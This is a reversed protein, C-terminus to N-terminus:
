ASVCLRTIDTGKLFCEIYKTRCKNWKMLMKEANEEDSYIKWLGSSIANKGKNDIFGKVDEPPYGLFLGVEHPCDASRFREQLYMLMEDLTGSYGFHELIAKSLPHELSKELKNKRYALILATGKKNVLPLFLLGREELKEICSIKSTLNGLAILSAPKMNALTPSGHMVLIEEFSM